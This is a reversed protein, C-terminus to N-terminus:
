KVRKESGKLELICPIMVINRMKNPNEMRELLLKMSMRGMEETDRSICSFHDTFIDILPVHDIGVVAIDKGIFMGKERLAKMFGLTTRNNSTVIGEPLVGTEIANKTIKYAADITFDGEYVYRYDIEMNSEAMADLYGKFRDKAIKLEMDGQIFGITKNGADILSKTALYGSQYNEYTVTDWSSHDFDRDVIVVPVNLKALMKKFKIVSAIDLYGMAPTIIVGRVRQHELMRLAHFEKEGSNQTDCSIISFDRSDAVETIGKLVEGFFSNDIEPIIVGITNTEKKSLSRAAASPSYEQESIVEEIKQRTEENVYGSNNLVRSVTSKSVGALKAIEKITVM